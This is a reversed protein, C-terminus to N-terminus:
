AVGSIVVLKVELEKCRESITKGSADVFAALHPTLFVTFKKSRLNTKTIEAKTSELMLRIRDTLESM